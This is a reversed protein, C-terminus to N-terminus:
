ANLEEWRVEFTQEQCQDFRPIRIAPHGIIQSLLDLQTEITKEYKNVKAIHQEQKHPPYDHLTFTDDWTWRLVEIYTLWEEVTFEVLIWIPINFIANALKDRRNELRLHGPRDWRKQPLCFRFVTHGTIDLFSLATFPETLKGRLTIM